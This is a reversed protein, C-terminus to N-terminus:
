RLFRCTELMAKSKFIKINLYSIGCSYHERCQNRCKDHLINGKSKAIKKTGRREKSKKKNEM